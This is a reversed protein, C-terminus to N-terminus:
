YAPADAGALIAIAFALAALAAGAAIWVGVYGCLFLATARARRTTFSRVRLQSVPMVLAPAMMAILMLTWGALFSGPPNMAVFMRLSAGLPMAGTHHHATMAMPGGQGLLLIWAAATTVLLANRVKPREGEDFM